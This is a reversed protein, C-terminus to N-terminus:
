RVVAYSAMSFRIASGLKTGSIPKEWSPESM